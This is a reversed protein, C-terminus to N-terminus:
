KKLARRFFLYSDKGFVVPLIYRIVSKDRPFQEWILHLAKKKERNDLAAMLSYYGQLNEVITIHAKLPMYDSNNKIQDILLGLEVPWNKSRSSNGEHIRYKMLPTDLYYVQSVSAVRLFFDYDEILSFLPNFGINNDDLIKKRVIAGSMGINYKKIFVNSPIVGPNEDGSSLWKKNKSFNEYRCYVLGVSSSSSAATVCSDIFSVNWVDDSDLFCLYNGQMKKMALNRAEGLPTKKEALYYRFRPEEYSKIIEATKDTSCNDWFIAEWNSYTQAILSDITERLYKESNYCNIIVSVLPQDTM